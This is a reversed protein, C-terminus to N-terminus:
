WPLLIEPDCCFPAKAVIIAVAIFVAFFFLNVILLVVFKCMCWAKIVNRLWRQVMAVHIKGLECTRKISFTFLVCFNEKELSQYLGKWIWGWFIKGVNSLILHFQFSWHLKIPVTRIWKKLSMKPTDDLFEAVMAVLFLLKEERNFAGEQVKLILYIGWADILDNITPSSLFSKKIFIIMICGTSVNLSDQFLKLGQSTKEILCYFLAINVRAPTSIM